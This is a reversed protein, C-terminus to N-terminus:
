VIEHVNFSIDAKITDVSWIYIFLHREISDYAHVIAWEQRSIEAVYTYTPDKKDKIKDCFEKINGFRTKTAFGAYISIKRTQGKLNKLKIWDEVLEGINARDSKLEISFLKNERTTDPSIVLDLRQANSGDNYPIERIAVFGSSLQLQLTGSLESRLLAEETARIDPTQNSDYLHEIKKRLLRGVRAWSLEITAIPEPSEKLPVEVVFETVDIQHTSELSLKEM